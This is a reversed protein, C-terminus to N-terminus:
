SVMIKVAEIVPATFMAVLVAYLAFSGVAESLYLRPYRHKLSVITLGGMILCGLHFFPFSNGGTTAAAAFAFTSTILVVFAATIITQITRKM